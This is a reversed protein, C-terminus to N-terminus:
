WCPSNQMARRELEMLISRGDPGIDSPLMTNHEMKYALRVCSKWGTAAGDFCKCSPKTEQHFSDKYLQFFPCEYRNPCEVSM